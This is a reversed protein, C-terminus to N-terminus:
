AQSGGLSVDLPLVDACVVGVDDDAGAGGDKSGNIVEAQDDDIFLVLGAELLVGCRAIVASVNSYFARLKCRSMADQAGCSRRELGQVVAFDFAEIM